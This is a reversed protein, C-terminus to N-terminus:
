RIQDLSAEDRELLWGAAAHHDRGETLGLLLWRGCRPHSHHGLAPSAVVRRVLLMEALLIADTGIRGQDEVLASRLSRM